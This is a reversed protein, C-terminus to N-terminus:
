GLVTAVNLCKTRHEFCDWYDMDPYLPYVIRPGTMSKDENSVIGEAYLVVASMKVLFGVTIEVLQVSTSILGQLIDLIQLSVLHIHCIFGM